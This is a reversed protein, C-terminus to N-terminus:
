AALAVWAPNGATTYTQTTLNVPQYLTTSPPAAAKRGCKLHAGTDPNLFAAYGGAGNMSQWSPATTYGTVYVFVAVFMGPQVPVVNSLTWEYLTTAAPTGSFTYTGRVSLGALSYGTMVVVQVTGTGAGAAGCFLRVKAARFARNAIGTHVQTTGIPITVTSSCEVRELTNWMDGYFAADPASGRPGSSPARSPAATTGTTVQVLDSVILGPGGYFPDVAGFVEGSSITVPATGPCYVGYQPSLTGAGDDDVGPYVQVNDVIVPMTATALVSLGAYGGGGTGNNRGDRRTVLGNIQLTASGTADVQVGNMGNRDTTINSAICGGSGQGTGWYGSTFLIGHQGNWESRINSIQGNMFGEFRFGTNTNGLANCDFITSDPSNAFRYGNNGCGDALCHEIRNSQPAASTGVMFDIGTDTVNRVTCHTLELERVLGIVQVGKTGAPVRDGEITMRTLRSNTHDSARGSETKGRLRWVATGSHTALPRIVCPSAVGGAYTIVDRFAFEVAVSEPQDIVARTQWTGSDFLVRGGGVGGDYARAAAIAAVIADTDDQGALGSGAANADAAYDRVQFTGLFGPGRPGAPGTAGTTGAPGTAGPNGQAGAPGAPGTSGTPGTPGQTGQSGTAGTPGQPGRTSPIVQTWAV